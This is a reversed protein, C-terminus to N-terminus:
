YGVIEGGIEQLMKGIDGGQETPFMGAGVRTSYAKVVGIINRIEFPNLALGQICGGISCPTATCFPYSGYDLDLMLAQSSEVLMSLKNERIVKMYEVADVVYPRLQEKYIKFRQIEDEVSYKLLEGYRKRYGEALLRLKQEFSEHYLDIVRM